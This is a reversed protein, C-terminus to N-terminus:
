DRKINYNYANYQASLKAGETPIVHHLMHSGVKKPVLRFFLFLGAKLSTGRGERGIIYIKKLMKWIMKSGGGENQVNPLNKMSLSPPVKCQEFIPCNLAYM